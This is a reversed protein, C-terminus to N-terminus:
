DGFEVHLRLLLVMTDDLSGGPNTVYQVDPQVQLWNSVQYLYTLEYSTEPNAAHLWLRAIGVSVRDRPRAAFPRVLDAGVGLYYPAPDDNGTNAGIQLFVRPERYASRTAVPKIFIGYIGGDPAPAPASEGRGDRYHWAGLKYHGGQPGGVRFGAEAIGMEGRGAPNARHHPDGQFVGARLQWRPRVSQVMAGYGTQPYISAPLDVGITPTIGFSSNILAGAAGTVAFWANLDMLGIRYRGYRGLEHSYYASFLRTAAHASLSSVGQTDGVLTSPDDGGIHEIDVRLRGGPWVDLKALNFATAAHVLAIAASGREIGGGRNAAIDTDAHIGWTFAREGHRLSVNSAAPRQSQGNAGNDGAVAGAAIVAAVVAALWATTAPPSVTATGRRSRAAVSHSRDPKVAVKNPSM